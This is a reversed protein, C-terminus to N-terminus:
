IITTTSITGSEKSEQYHISYLPFNRYGYLVTKPATEKVAITKIKAFNM